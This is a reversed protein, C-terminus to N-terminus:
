IKSSTHSFTYSRLWFTDSRIGNKCKLPLTARFTYSCIAKYCTRWFPLRFTYSRLLFTKSRIATNCFLSLTARFTYSRIVKWCIIYFYISSRIPVYYSLLPVYVSNVFYRSPQVSRIPVYWKEVFYEFIYSLVYLFTIPVCLFQMSYKQWTKRSPKGSLGMYIYIYIYTQIYM